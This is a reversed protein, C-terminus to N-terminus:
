FFGFKSLFYVMYHLKILFYYSSIFRSDGVSKIYILLQKFPYHQIHAVLVAINYQNLLFM